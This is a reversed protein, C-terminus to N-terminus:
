ACYKPSPPCGDSCYFFFFITLFRTRQLIPQFYFFSPSFKRQISKQLQQIKNEPSFVAKFIVSDKKLLLSKFKVHVSAYILLFLMNKFAHFQVRIYTHSIKM